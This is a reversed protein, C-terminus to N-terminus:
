SLFIYREAIYNIMDISGFNDISIKLLQGQSRDVAIRCIKDLVWPMKFNDGDNKLDVVSWM